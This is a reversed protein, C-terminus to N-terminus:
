AREDRSRVAGFFWGGIQVGRIRDWRVRYENVLHFTVPVGLSFKLWYWRLSM